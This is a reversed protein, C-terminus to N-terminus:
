DRSMFYRTGRLELVVGDSTIEEIRAGEQTVDGERYRKSNIFVFREQPRNSYVHLELRQEPVIGRASLDDAAPLDRRAAHPRPDGSPLSPEAQPRAPPPDAEPLTEYVVSGRRAPTVAPPGAPVGAAASALESEMPPAAGSVEDALPNHGGAAAAPAGPPSLTPPAALPVSPVPRTETLTAQPSPVPRAAAPPAAPAPAPESAQPQASPVAAPAPEDRSRWLLLVAVAVLNVVLLAVAITAWHNTRPKPTAVPVDVIAPGSQRQREHESKRLADLIFSV